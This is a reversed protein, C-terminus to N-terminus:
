AGSTPTLEYCTIEIDQLKSQRSITFTLVDGVNKTLIYNKIEARSIVEQGDIATVRDGPLLADSNYGDVTSVVYVGMSNVGYMMATMSDSIDLFEIGLFVRGRVYGFEKLQEIMKLADNSPIAFGLGEIGSGSSKANVIGILEGKMNFLGGGSNGPNVAANTQLLNMSTGDVGIERDLASIIGNTVTGGLEGLPNGIAVVDEGVILQDSDGFVAPTLGTEEIKLLAIDSSSDTGVVTAEYEEGNKLRVRVKDAVGNSSSIVHNNTVILGDSTIIVGSGAGETVYQFFNSMNQYETVIEVISNEVAAAVNSITGITVAGTDTSVSRYIVGGDDDSYSDSPTGNVSSAAPSIKNAILTGGFGAFGSLIVGVTCIAAVAATARSKKEKKYQNRYQPAPEAAKPTIYVPTFTEKDPVQSYTGYSTRCPNQQPQPTPDQIVRNPYEQHSNAQSPNAESTAEENAATKEPQIKNDDDNNNNKNFIYDPM